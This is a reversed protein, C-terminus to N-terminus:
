VEVRPTVSNTGTTYTAARSCSYTSCNDRNASVAIPVANGSYVSSVATPSLLIPSMAGMEIWTGLVRLPPCKPHSELWFSSKLEFEDYASRLAFAFSLATVGVKWSV